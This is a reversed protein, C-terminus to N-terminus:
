FNISFLVVWFHVKQKKIEPQSRQKKAFKKPFFEVVVWVRLFFATMGPCLQLRTFHLADCESFSTLLNKHFGGLSYIGSFAGTGGLILVERLMFTCLLVLVAVVLRSNTGSKLM